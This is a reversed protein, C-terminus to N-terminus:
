CNHRLRYVTSHVKFSRGDDVCKFVLGEGPRQNARQRLDAHCAAADRIKVYGLVPVHKLGLRRALGEVDRPNIYRQTAVDYMSYVFFETQDLGERNQNIGPGCLEGQIAISRGHKALKEHLKHRLATKWYGFTCPALEHIDAKKSCVGFRGTGLVMNAGLKSNPLKNLDHYKTLTKKVFYVTMSCGDM